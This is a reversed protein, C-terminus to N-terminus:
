FQPTRLLCLLTPTFQKRLDKLDAGEAMLSRGSGGVVPTQAVSGHPVLFRRPNAPECFIHSAYVSPMTMTVVCNPSQLGHSPKGTDWDIPGMHARPAVASRRPGPGEHVEQSQRERPGM